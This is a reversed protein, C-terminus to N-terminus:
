RGALRMAVLAEYPPYGRLSSLHPNARVGVRTLTGAPADLAEALASVAEDRHGAIAAVEALDGLAEVRAAADSFLGLAEHAERLGDEGRGVGAHARALWLLEVALAEHDRGPRLAAVKAELPGVAEALAARAAAEHGLAQHAVGVLLSRPVFPSDGSVPDPLRGAAELNLVVGPLLCLLDIGSAVAVNSATWQQLVADLAARAPRTDGDRWYPIMACLAPARVDGPSLERARQCAAEAEDFHRLQIMRDAVLVSVFYSRPDLATAARLDEVAAAWQGMAVRTYGVNVRAVADGPLGRAQVEYESLAGANDADCAWRVEALAGHAQPLGPDLALAREAHRRAEACTAEFPFGALAGNAVETDLVALWAHALAFAPDRAVAATLLEQARQRDADDSSRGWFYLARLYHEQAVPDRTPVRELRGREAPTLRAGLARAIHVAVESEVAFLDDARRDFSEAWRPAGSEPDVLQARIRVRGGDREVSGEVLAGVGLRRALARPDRALEGSLGQVSDRGLVRVEGIQTLATILEAQLGAALSADEPARSLAAFPLVALSAPAAQAAPRLAQWGVAAGLLLAAAGASLAALGLRRRRPRFPPLLRVTTDDAARMSGLFGALAALVESADRPRRGPDRELMRGVLAGLAPCSPVSLVPAPGAELSKGGEPLPVRGCLMQHLMVGLAFVDTREDEAGDSWQEPAMYAPTGGLTRQRGFAHAMGFDLVKVHGGDCLFVNKPKLDRHIVGQGHAHALGRAVELGVRVAERPELPGQKLCDGLTVGRLLELVLYPGQECRGVDHLTVLNPHSLRAIAEAERLLIEGAGPDLGRGPRVAKFAVSRGLERDRAEYVIGFGGRGIESVLEFRGVQEGPKLNRTWDESRRPMTALELLLASMAQSPDPPKRGPAARDPAPPVPM